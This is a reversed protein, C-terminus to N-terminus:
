AFIRNLTYALRYGALAIRRECIQQGQKLYDESPAQNVQIGLYVFEKGISFSEQAWDMPDVEEIRAKGFYSKPYEAQISKAAKRIQSYRPFQEGFFRIYLGVAQDWLPHLYDAMPSKIPFLNGGDDGKPYAKTVRTIGHLPQHVDGVFHILFSLFMGKESWNVRASELVIEAQGIAWVVNHPDVSPLPTGDPSFPLDIYHWDNFVEIDDSKIVDPWTSARLFNRARPDMHGFARLYHHAKIKAVPTLHDYAIQAVLEHGIANWGFTIIPWCGLFLLLLFANKFRNLM